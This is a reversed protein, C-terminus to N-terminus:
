RGNERWGPYRRGQPLFAGSRPYEMIMSGAYGCTLRTEGCGVLSAEGRVASNPPEPRTSSVAPEDESQPDANQLSSQPLGHVPQQQGPPPSRRSVGCSVVRCVVVAASM